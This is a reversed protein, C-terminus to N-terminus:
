RLREVDRAFRRLVRREGLLRPLRALVWGWARLHLWLRSPSTALSRLGEVVGYRTVFAPWARAPAHLAYLTYLNKLKHFEVDPPAAASGRAPIHEVGAGPVYCVRFGLARIRMCIEVDEFYMFFEDRFGGLLDLVDRRALAAGAPLWAVDAPEAFQGMDREGRGRLTARFVGQLSVEGGASLIRGDARDYILGACMGCAPEKDAFDALRELCDPALIIDDESMYVFRGRAARVGVNMGGAFGLNGSTSILRAEPVAAVIAAIRESAPSPHDVVLIERDRVTQAVVSSLSEALEEPRNHSLVVISVRPREAV